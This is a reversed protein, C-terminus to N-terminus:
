ASSISDPYMAWISSLYATSYYLHLPRLGFGGLFISLGAQKWASCNAPTNVGTCESFCGQVCCKILPFPPEIYDLAVAM